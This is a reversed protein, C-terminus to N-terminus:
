HKGNKWKGKGRGRYKGRREGDDDGRAEGRGPSPVIAGTDLRALGASDLSERNYDEYLALPRGLSDLVVAGAATDRLALTDIALSADRKESCATAVATLFAAVVM